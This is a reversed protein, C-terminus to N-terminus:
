HFSYCREISDLSEIRREGGFFFVVRRAFFVAFVEYKGTRSPVVGNEGTVCISGTAFDGDIVKLVKFFVCPFLTRM